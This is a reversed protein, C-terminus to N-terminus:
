RPNRPVNTPYGTVISGDSEQIVEIEIGDRVGTVKTRGGRGPYRTSDPDTAVDSIEGSIKQDSWSSPFESKGPRGTGARHGGGKSDGDLVHAERDPDLLSPKGVNPSSTEAKALNPTKCVVNPKGTEQDVVKKCHKQAYIAAAAAGVVIVTSPRPLLRSLLGAQSTGAFAFALLVLALKRIFKM